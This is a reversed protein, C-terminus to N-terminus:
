WNPTKRQVWSQWDDHHRAARQAEWILLLVIRPAPASSALWSGCTAGAPDAPHNTSVVVCAVTRAPADGRQHIKLVLMLALNMAM